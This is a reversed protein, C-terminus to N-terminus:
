TLTNCAYHLGMIPAPYTLHQQISSIYAHCSSAAWGWSCDVASILTLCPLSAVTWVGCGCPGGQVQVNDKSCPARAHPDWQWLPRLDLSLSRGDLLFTTSATAPGRAPCPAEVLVVLLGCLPCHRLIRLPHPSRLCPGPHPPSLLTLLLTSSAIPCPFHAISLVM